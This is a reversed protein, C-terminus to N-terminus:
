RQLLLNLSSPQERHLLSGLEVTGQIPGDLVEGREYGLDRLLKIYHTLADGHEHLASDHLECLLVANSQRLINRAGQMVQLDYGDVDVKMFDIRTINREACYRDLTLFQLQELTQKALIRASFRSEIAEVGSREEALLGAHNLHIQASHQPNLSMNRQCREFAWRTPEFAHVQGRPGVGQALLLTYYGVNSGVDIAIQGAQVARLTAATSEPEFSGRQMVMREIYNEHSCFLRAGFSTSFILDRQPFLAQRPNQLYYSAFKGVKRAVRLM